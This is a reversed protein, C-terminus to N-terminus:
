IRKLCAVGNKDKIMVSVGVSGEKQYEDLTAQYLTNNPHMSSSDEWQFQWDSPTPEFADESSCAVWLISSLFLVIILTKM